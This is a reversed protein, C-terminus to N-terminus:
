SLWVTLVRRLFVVVCPSEGQAPHHHQGVDGVARAPRQYDPGDERGGARGGESRGTLGM